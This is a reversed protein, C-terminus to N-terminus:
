TAPPALKKDRIVSLPDLCGDGDFFVCNFINGAHSRRSPEFSESIRTYAENISTCKLDPLAPIHCKCEALSSRGDGRVVLSVTSTLQIEVFVGPQKPWTYKEQYFGRLEKPIQDRKIRAWISAKAPLFEIKQESLLEKRAADDLIDSPSVILEAIAGPKMHPLPAGHALTCIGDEIKVLLRATGSMKDPLLPKM